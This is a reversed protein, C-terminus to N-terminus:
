SMPQEAFARFCTNSKMEPNSAGSTPLSTSPPSPFASASNRTAAAASSVREMRPSPALGSAAAPRRLLSSPAAPAAALSPSIRPSSALGLPMFGVTTTCARCVSSGTQGGTASISAKRCRRASANSRKWSRRCSAQRLAKPMSAFTLARSTRASSASALCCTRAGITCPTCTLLKRSDRARTMAPSWRFATSASSALSDPIFAASSNFRVTSSPLM